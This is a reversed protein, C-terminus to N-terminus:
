WLGALTLYQIAYITKLDIIEGTEVMTLAQDKNVTLAETFEDVDGQVSVALKTVGTALFQHQSAL